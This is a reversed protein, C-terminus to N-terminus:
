RISAKTIKHLNQRRAQELGRFQRLTCIFYAVEWNTQMHSCLEWIEEETKYISAWTYTHKPKKTNGKTSTLQLFIHIITACEISKPNKWVTTKSLRM